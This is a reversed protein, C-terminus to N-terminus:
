NKYRIESFTIFSSKDLKPPNELFCKELVIKYSTGLKNEKMIKVTFPTKRFTFNELSGQNEHGIKKCFEAIFDSLQSIVVKM